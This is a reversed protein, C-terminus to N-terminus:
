RVEGFFENEMQREFRSFGESYREIDTKDLFRIPKGCELIAADTGLGCGDVYRSALDVLYIGLKTAQECSLSSHGEAIGAFYRLVSSDGGGIYEKEAIVVQEGKTRFLFCRYETELAILTQLGKAEKSKFIPLLAERFYNPEHVLDCETAEQMAEHLIDLINACIAKASDPSGCYASAFRFAMPYGPIHPKGKKGEETEYWGIKSGEFKLGADADTMQRDACLVAWERNTFGVAISMEGREKPRDDRRSFSPYVEGRVKTLHIIM